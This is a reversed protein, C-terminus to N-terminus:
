KGPLRDDIGKVYFDMGLIQEDALVGNGKCAVESGDQTLVPCKFPHLTGAKIRGQTDEAMATVEDPMNAYPAMKVMGAALGDWTDTSVWSGDLVQGVRRVYYNTWNDILGTLQAHPGFKAM